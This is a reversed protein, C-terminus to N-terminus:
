TPVPPTAPPTSQLINSANTQFSSMDPIPNAPTVANTTGSGGSSAFSSAQSTISSLSTIGSTAAAQKKTADTSTDNAITEGSLLSNIWDGWSQDKAVKDNKSAEATKQAEELAKSTEELTEPDKFFYDYAYNSAPETIGRTRTRLNHYFSYKTPPAKFKGAIERGTMLASVTSTFESGKLSFLDVGTKKKFRQVVEITGPDNSFAIRGEKDLSDYTTGPIEPYSM